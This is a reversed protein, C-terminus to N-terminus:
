SGKGVTKILYIRSYTLNDLLHQLALKQEAPRACVTADEAEPKRYEAAAGVEARYFVTHM